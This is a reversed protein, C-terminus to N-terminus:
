LFFMHVKIEDYGRNGAGQMLNFDFDSILFKVWIIILYIFWIILRFLSGLRQTRDKILLKRIFDGIPIVDGTVTAILKAMGPEDNLIRRCLNKDSIVENLVKTFPSHGVILEYITIGLTWWDVELSHGSQNLIEPAFYQLTGVKDYLLEDPEVKRALGFDTLQIHGDSSVLINELKLDRYVIQNEHLYKIACFIEASCIKAEELTLTGENVYNFLTGCPMYEM